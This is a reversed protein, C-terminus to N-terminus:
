EYKNIGSATLQDASTRITAPSSCFLSLSQFFAIPGNFRLNSESHNHEVQALIQFVTQKFKPNTRYVTCFNYDKLHSEAENPAGNQLSNSVGTPHAKFIQGRKKCPLVVMRQGGVEEINLQSVRICDEETQFVAFGSGRSKGTKIDKNIVVSEIKGLVSLLKKIDKEKLNKKFGGIYVKRKMLEENTEKLSSYTKTFSCEVRRGRLFVESSIMWQASASEYFSVFGFTAASKSQARIIKISKVRGFRCACRFVEQDTTEKPIGGVFVKNIVLNNSM